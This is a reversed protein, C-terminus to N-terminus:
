PMRERIEDPLDQGNWDLVISMSRAQRSQTGGSAGSRGIGSLPCRAAPGPARVDRRRDSTLEQVKFWISDDVIRWEPIERAIV